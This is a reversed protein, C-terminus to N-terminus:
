RRWVFYERQIKEPAGGAQAFADCVSGALRGGACLALREPIGKEFLRKPDLRESKSEFIRLEIGAAKALSVARELLPEADRSKICWNLQIRPEDSAQGGQARRREAATAMWACFPAIGIGAAVWVQERANFDPCFAGWPGEVEVPDGAKLNPAGSKTWGSFSKISFVIRGDPLQQTVSFPHKEAGKARLFAFQGGKFRPADAAAPKVVVITAGPHKEVADVSAAFTKSRGPGVALLKVSYWTGVITVALNIWGLPLTLDAADMLRVAHVALVIFIVSFLAHLKAWLAYRVQPVFILVALILGAASVVWSSTVAFPRLQQWFADLWTVPEAPVPKTAPELTLLSFFPAMVDKTFIHFVSLGIAWFGITRHSRYLEDLPEGAVREIWAPRAAIIVAIAMLGFALVGNLYFVEHSLARGNWAPPNAWLGFLWAAVTLGAFGFIIRKM